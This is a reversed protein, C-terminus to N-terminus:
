MHDNLILHPLSTGMTEVESITIETFSPSLCLRHGLNTASQLNRYAM